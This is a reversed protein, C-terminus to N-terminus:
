DLVDRFFSLFGVLKINGDECCMTLVRNKPVIIDQEFNFHKSSDGGKIFYSSAITGRILGTIDTGVQFMGDALRNSGANLNGPTVDVGGVPNGSDNLYINITEDSVARITIGEFVLDEDFYNKIYLICSDTSDSTQSFLMSFSNGLQNADHELSEVVAHVHLMNRNDVQAQFGNGKGDEIQLAM